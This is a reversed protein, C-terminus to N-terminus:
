STTAHHSVYMLLNILRQHIPTDKDVPAYSYFDPNVTELSSSLLAAAYLSLPMAVLSTIATHSKKDFTEPEHRAIGYINDVFESCQKYIRVNMDLIFSDATKNMSKKFTLGLFMSTAAGNSTSRQFKLINKFNEDDPALTETDRRMNIMHVMLILVLGAREGFGFIGQVIKRDHDLARDGGIVKKADAPTDKRVFAITDQFGEHTFRFVADTMAPNVPANHAAGYDTFFKLALAPMAESADEYLSNSKTEIIIALTDRLETYEPKLFHEHMHNLSSLASHVAGVWDKITAALKDQLKENLDSEM